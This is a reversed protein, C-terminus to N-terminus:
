AHHKHKHCKRLLVRKHGHKHKKCKKKHTTGAGNGGGGNQNQGEDNNRAVGTGTLNATGAGTTLTGSAPGPSTPKFVIGISCPISTLFGCDNTQTFPGTVAVAPAILNGYCFDPLIGGPICTQGPDLTANKPASPVGVPQNGFDLGAPLVSGSASAVSSLIFGCSIAATLVARRRSKNM